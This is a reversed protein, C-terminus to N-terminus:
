LGKVLGEDAIRMVSQQLSESVPAKCDMKV